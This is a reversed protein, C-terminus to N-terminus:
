LVAIVILVSKMWTCEDVVGGRVLRSFYVDTKRESERCMRLHRLLPKGWCRDFPTVPQFNVISWKHMKVVARLVLKRWGLWLCVLGILDLVRINLDLRCIPASVSMLPVSKGNCQVGLSWNNWKFWKLYLQWEINGCKGRMCECGWMYDDGNGNCELLSSPCTEFTLILVFM